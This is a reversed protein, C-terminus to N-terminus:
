TRARADWALLEKERQEADLKELAAADVYFATLGVEQVRWRLAPLWRTYTAVSALTANNLPQAFWADYDTNGGWGAKMAVYETQLTAFAREKHARLEAPEAGSGYVARLRRQQAAVLDGFQARRERRVRYLDLDAPTGHQTLWRETGLEEVVMAFSESFESDDKIYLKQHALEHFLLSAVYQDGGNVMTSLVPDAFYGLTSYATSGGSHVDLGDNALNAAFRDAAAKDFYGRYAVCGAFPFCWRRPDVSFEETAVVNWVVYPRDLAVYSTYSDNSPLGLEDVAFRRIETIRTLTTKLKPDAQPDAIVEEIPERKRLLELQGGIAQWYYPAACGATLVAVACLAFARGISNM